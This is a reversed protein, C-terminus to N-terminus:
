RGRKEKVQEVLASLRTRISEVMADILPPVEIEVVAAGLRRRIEEAIIAGETACHSAGPIRSIVAAEAGAAAMAAVIDEARQSAPGVMPDALAMQALAEYPPVDQPIMALAHGFMYDTGCVRGGCEELLNMARLDAVPNVWFIRAAARDLVGVGAQVRRQVEALLDTLVAVTEPRDSCYHISLMEAVLMEMAGLPAIPAAFVAQRLENLLRRVRNAEVISKALPGATVRKGLRSNMQTALKQLQRAVFKVQSQPARRGSPLVVAEEGPDCPRRPPIEWWAIPFGMTELRQAIASFDDCTAGASCTLLDPRPFHEGTLFAGLMARVPCFSEDIGLGDARALLGDSMEMMCPQWWAGDPYFAVTDQLAYAMIPVTGLDKMTGIITKGDRRAQFLRDEESLLFNWLRLAAASDDFRLCSLRRDGDALRRSLRGGYAPEALGGARLVDYREDWQALTIQRPPTM